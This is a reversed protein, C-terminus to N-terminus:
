VGPAAGSLRLEARIVGDPDIRGAVGVAGLLRLWEGKVPAGEGWETLAEGLLEGSAFSFGSKPAPRPRPLRAFWGEDALGTLQEQRVRVARGLWAASTSAVLVTKSGEGALLFGAGAEARLGRRRVRLVKRRYGPAPEDSVVEAVFARDSRELTGKAELLAFHLRREFEADSRVRAILSMTPSPQGSALSMWPDPRQSVAVAFDGTLRGLVDKQFSEGGLVACVHDQVYRQVEEREAGSLQGLVIRWVTKPDVQWVAGACTDSPLYAVASERFAAHAADVPGSGDAASGPGLQLSVVCLRPGAPGSGPLPDRLRVGVQPATGAGLASPLSPAVRRGSRAASVFRGLLEADNSVALVDGVKTWAVGAGAEVVMWGPGEPTPLRETRTTAAHLGLGLNAVPEVRSICLFVRRGRRTRVVAVAVERGFLDFVDVVPIGLVRGRREIQKVAAALRGSELLRRGEATEALGAYGPLVRVRGWTARVDPCRALVEPDFDILATLPEGSELPSRSVYVAAWLGLAVAAALLVAGAWGLRRRWRSRGFETASM